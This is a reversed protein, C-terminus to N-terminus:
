WSSARPPSCAASRGAPWRSPSPATWPRSTPSTSGSGSAAAASIITPWSASNWRRWRASSRCTSSPSSWAAPTSGTWRRACPRPARPTYFTFVDRQWGPGTLGDTEEPQLQAGTAVILVDYDLTNGNRLYVRDNEIDVHDITAQCYIIGDHLQRGRPRTIRQVDALGFPVFLLGPQYVHADDRDVVVIDAAEPRYARRLRNALLTGGTGGGLIVIRKM